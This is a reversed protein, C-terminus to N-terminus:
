SRNLRKNLASRTMGLLEAAITQNNGSRKMAACIIFQEAEKLTPFRLEKGERLTLQTDPCDGNGQSEVPKVLTGRASNIQERISKLSMVRGEHRGVADFIMGQLERVNGPFSYTSLLTRLEPPPTPRKKKLLVSAEAIIHGVLVGLDEPRKRLPPIHVHHAQLRYYLDKRFRGAKQLAQLDKHTATVIRANSRKPTDAGLPYFEGEQLLRLLKVQSIESLDGIEDLFLTGGSAKEIFGSRDKLAGSFAGKQHGFLADSFLNDDLGAVNVPLFDGTVESSEHIAYAMLEKGVGTEGTILVPFSTKAISEVYRFNAHMVKSQTLIKEFVEPRKLNDAFLSKKLLSNERRLDCVEVARRISGLFREKKIPKLIYDSAGLRMCEIATEIESVGTLVVIPVGAFSKSVSSLLDMGSVNPMKLDMVLVAVEMSSLIPMVDRSDNSTIVNTIGSSKLLCDFSELLHKEDDVLLVPASPFLTKTM